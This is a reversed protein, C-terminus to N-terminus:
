WRRTLGRATGIVLGRLKACAVEFRLRSRRRGASAFMKVVDRVGDAWLWLAGLVDGSRAHKMAFGAWSLAYGYFLPPLDAATRWQEHHARPGPTAYAVGGDRLLRYNFDMDEAAPFDPVGAGLREDWGGLREIASRRVAMCVGFGIKWPYVWRGARRREEDVAFTTVVLYDDQPLNHELVSGSVFSADPHGALFSSLESAWDPALLCDDDVFVTWETDLARWGLNRARSLGRGADRIVSLRDSGSERRALAEDPEDSQDVVVIRFDQRDLSALADLTPHLHEARNRTCVIVGFEHTLEATRPPTPSSPSALRM